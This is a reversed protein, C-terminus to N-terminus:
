KLRFYNGFQNRNVITYRNEIYNGTELSTFSISICPTLTGNSNDTDSKNTVFAKGESKSYSSGNLVNYHRSSIERLAPVGFETVYVDAFKITDTYGYNHYTAVWTSHAFDELTYTNDNDDDSCSVFTVALIAILLLTIKKM